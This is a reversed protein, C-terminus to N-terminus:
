NFAILDIISRNLCQNDAFKALAVLRDYDYLRRYFALDIRKACGIQIMNSANSDNLISSESQQCIWEALFWSQRVHVYQGLFKCWRWDSDDALQLLRSTARSRDTATWTGTWNQISVDQFTQASTVSHAVVVQWIAAVISADVNIIRRHDDNRCYCSIWCQQYRISPQKATSRYRNRISWFQRDSFRNNILVFCGYILWNTPYKLGM